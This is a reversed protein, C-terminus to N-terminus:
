GRGEDVGVRTESLDQAVDKEGESSRQAAIRYSYLWRAACRHEGCRLHEFKAGYHGWAWEDGYSSSRRGADNLSSFSFVREPGRGILLCLFRPVPTTIPLSRQPFRGM